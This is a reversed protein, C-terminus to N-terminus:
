KFGHGNEAEAELIIPTYTNDNFYEVYQEKTEQPLKNFNAVVSDFDAELGNEEAKRRLIEIIKAFEIGTVTAVTLRGIFDAVELSPVFYFIGFATYSIAFWKIDELTKIILERWDFKGLKAYNIAGVLAKGLLVLGLVIWANYMTISDHIEQIINM